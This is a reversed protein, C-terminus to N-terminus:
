LVNKRTIVINVYKLFGTLKRDSKKTAINIFLIFLGHLYPPPTSSILISQDSRGKGIDHDWRTLSFNDAKIKDIQTM